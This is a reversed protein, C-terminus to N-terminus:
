GLETGSTSMKSGLIAIGGHRARTVCGSARPDYLRLGNPRGYTCYLLVGRCEDENIKESVPLTRSSRHQVFVIVGTIERPQLTNKFKSLNFISPAM